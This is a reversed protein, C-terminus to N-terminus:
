SWGLAVKHCDFFDYMRPDDWHWRTLILDNPWVLVM